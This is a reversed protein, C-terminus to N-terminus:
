YGAWMYMVDPTSMELLKTKDLRLLNKANSEYTLLNAFTFPRRYEVVRSDALGALKEVAKVADDLYGIDDILKEELALDAAYISGDALEVVENRTLEDRRGTAVINVFREYAPDIMRQQMYELQQETPQNFSSPWNKKEGAKVVVPVVGLKDELLEQLVFYYSIVGISGTITTPEAMIDECAVAVYYGGSAAVSQMFAIVPEGTQKRYDSIEKYVRDSGAITGGPSNIRVILGRVRKDRRAAQMQRHVNNALEGTIVGQVNIVAIKDSAPGKRVISEELFGTTATGFMSVVVVVVIILVINAVLSLALLIGLLVKTGTGSKPPAPPPPPPPPTRRVPPPQFPPMDPNEPHNETNEFDM